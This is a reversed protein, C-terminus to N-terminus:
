AAKGGPNPNDTVVLAIIRVAHEAATGGYAHEPANVEAGEVARGMSEGDLRQRFARDEDVESIAAGITGLPPKRGPLVRVARSRRRLERDTRGQVNDARPRTHHGCPFGPYAPPGAGVAAVPTASQVRGADGCKVCVADLRICPFAADPPDRGLLDAVAEDAQQAGMTEDVPSEATAGILGAMNVVGDDFGPM